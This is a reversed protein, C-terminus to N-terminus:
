FLYTFLYAENFKKWHSLVIFIVGLEFQKASYFYICIYGVAEISSEEM